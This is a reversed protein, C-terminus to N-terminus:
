LALKKLLTSQLPDFQPNLALAQDFYARAKSNDAAALEIMGAHYLLKSDQTNLRLALQMASRAEALKGAKLATWALADAGYIDRRVAYESTAMAYADAPRLDHDAYFLALQRNYLSGGAASLRGIAEVLAYQRAADQERGVLRYLDGLDSLLLPEPLIRVAAEYQAIADALDGRAARVRGLSSLARYYGPFTTLADRDFQEAVAYDGRSFAIEGLQWRCWAVTERAPVPQVLALELAAVLQSHATNLDGHLLAQRAVRQKSAIRPLEGITGLQEMRQFAAKAQEYDGLELLADGLIQYGYAKDPELHTLLLAHDRAASFKHSSYESQALVNLGALNRGAPLSALSAQAAQLARQLYTADGTERMIQLYQSALKNLAIFDEPDKRIRSELWAIQAHVTVSDSPLLVAPAAAAAEATSRAPNSSCAGLSAAVIAVFAWPTSVRTKM